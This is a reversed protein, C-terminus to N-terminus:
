IIYHSSQQSLPRNTIDHNQCSNEFKLFGNGSIVSQFLLVSSIVQGFLFPDSHDMRVELHEDSQIQTNMTKYLVGWKFYILGEM